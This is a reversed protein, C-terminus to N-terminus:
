GGGLREFRARGRLGCEPCPCQLSFHFFEIVVSFEMARDKEEVNEVGCVGWVSSYVALYWEKQLVFRM